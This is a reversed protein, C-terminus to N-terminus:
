AMESEYYPQAPSQQEVWSAVDGTHRYRRGYGSGSGDPRSRRRFLKRPQEADEGEIAAAVSSQPRRLSGEPYLTAPAYPDYEYDLLAPAKRKNSPSRVIIDDYLPDTQAYPDASQDAVDAFPNVAPGSGTDPSLGLRALRTRRNSPSRAVADDYLPETQAYPDTSLDAVRSWPSTRQGAPASSEARSVPARTMGQGGANPFASPPNATRSGLGQPPAIPASTVTAADTAVSHQNESGEENGVVKAYGGGWWRTSYTTGEERQRHITPLAQIGPESTWRTHTNARVPSRPRPGVVASRRKPGNSLSRHSRHSRVSAATAGSRTRALDAGRATSTSKIRVPRDESRSSRRAAFEQMTMREAPRNLVRPRPRPGVARMRREVPPREPSAPRHRYLGRKEPSANLVLPADEQTDTGCDDHVAPAYSTPPLPPLGRQGATDSPEPLTPPADGAFPDQISSPPLYAPEALGSEQARKAAYTLASNKREKQIALPATVQPVMEFKEELAETELLPAPVGTWREAAASVFPDIAERNTFPDETRHALSGFVAAASSHYAPDDDTIMPRTLPAGPGRRGRLVTNKEAQSRLNQTTASGPSRRLLYILAAMLLIWGIAGFLLFLPTTFLIHGDSYVIGNPFDSPNPAGLDTVVESPKIGRPLLSTTARTLALTPPM